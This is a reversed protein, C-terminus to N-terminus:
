QFCSLITWKEPLEASLFHDLFDVPFNAPTKKEAQCFNDGGRAVIRAEASIL